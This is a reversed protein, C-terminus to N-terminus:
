KNVLFTGINPLIKDEAWAQSFKLILDGQYSFMTTIKIIKELVYVNKLQIYVVTFSLKENERKLEKLDRDEEDRMKGGRDDNTIGDRNCM